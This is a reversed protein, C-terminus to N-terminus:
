HLGMEGRFREVKERSLNKTLCDAIMDGTHLYVLEIEGTTVKERVYHEQIAIHKTRAHFEPNHALAISGQNDIYVRTKPTCPPGTPNPIPNESNEPIGQLEALFRSVWIAEKAAQTLAMYEAETSSLAVTQQRKSSWSITSQIPNGTSSSTTLVCVYGGTSKWTDLDGAWDADSYLIPHLDNTSFPGLTLGLHATKKVYRLLHKAASWHSARPWDNYRSLVGVAFAIDPRSCLMLYMLSGIMSRYETEDVEGVVVRDVRAERDSTDPTELLKTGPNLPTSVTHANTLHFRELIKQIYASQNLSIKQPGRVIEIGLFFHASGMDTVPFQQALQSKAEDVMDRSGIWLVDDVWILVWCYDDSKESKKLYVAHDDKSRTFGCTGVLHRDWEQNWMRGSQKLGYLGKLLKCVKWGTGINKEVDLGEPIDMYIEEDLKALLYASKIDTQDVEYDRAAALALIIRLSTLKVVPAYTELYDIGYRQTFGKAVLRAKYKIVEGGAAGRKM